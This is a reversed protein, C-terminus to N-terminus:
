SEELPNSKSGGGSWGGFCEDPFKVNTHPLWVSVREERMKIIIEIRKRGRSSV